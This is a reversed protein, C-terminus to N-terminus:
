KQEKGQANGRSHSFYAGSLTMFFSVGLAISVVNFLAPYQQPTIEVRGIFLSVLLLVMATGMMNGSVRSFNLLATGIGYRTKDLSSLAANNNPTTFLGFGLGQIVMAICIIIISTTVDLWQLIIYAFTMILCGTTAIIRPEFQDSLRGAIPAVIAMTLPQLVMIQGADAPSMGRIFQLYLSFLFIFPYNSWYICLNGMLSRSFMRNEIIAKFHILPYDSQTQQYIFIMMFLAGIGFLFIAQMSPVFSIGIFLCSTAVAFIIGGLWDIKGPRDNKWEGKLRFIIMVISITGLVLPFLFVIRWSFHETFWGGVVPGCSLGFYLTGAAFGIASGRNESTFISMIIALGTAFALAGGFGQLLRTILLIEINPALVAMLCSLCFISMGILFIKKRGYIDAARGAPILFIANSLLFATPVWSVLIANANFDLAIAPVAINVASMTISVCFTSISISALALWRANPNNEYYAQTTQSNM